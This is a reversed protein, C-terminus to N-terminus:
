GEVKVPSCPGRVSASARVADIVQMAARGDAATALAAPPRGSVAEAFAALQAALSTVLASPESGFPLRGRVLAVPGGRRHRALLRGGPGRVEVVERHARDAALDISAPGRGLVLDFRARDPAVSAGAVEVVDSGTLWRALDVLHPGLDLLVDDRVAHARWSRRRYHFALHLDVPGDVPVKARLAAVGRDFRRNFGIWPPPDLRELAAAGLADVAPPKEVLAPVGAASSATAGALHTAVPTALVIGDVGGEDLLDEFSAFRGVSDGNRELTAAVQERRGGDPDAVAALRVHPVLGAAPVYGSEAVRGCGVLGLRVPQTV